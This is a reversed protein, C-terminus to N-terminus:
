EQCKMILDAILSYIKGFDSESIFNGILSLVIVIITYILLQRSNAKNAQVKLLFSASPFTKNEHQEKKESIHYAIMPKKIKCSSKIYNGWNHNEFIRVKMQGNNLYVSEGIDNILLFHVKSFSVKKAELTVCDSQELLKPDNIRFDFVTSKECYPVFFRSWSKESTSLKSKDINEIRIRFYIRKDKSYNNKNIPLKIKTICKKKDEKVDLLDDLFLYFPNRQDENKTIVTRKINSDSNENQISVGGNFINRAIDETKTISGLNKVQKKSYIGPVILELFEIEDGYIQSMIGVDLCHIKNADSDWLNFHLELECNTHSPLILLTNLNSEGFLSNKVKEWLRIM